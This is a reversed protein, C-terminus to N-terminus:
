KGGEQSGIGGVIVVEVFVSIDSVLAVMDTSGVVLSILMLRVMRSRGGASGERGVKVVFGRSELAISSM